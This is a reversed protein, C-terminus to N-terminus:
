PQLAVDRKHNESAKKFTKKNAAQHRRVRTGSTETETDSLSAHDLIILPVRDTIPTLDPYYLNNQCKVCTQQTISNSTSDCWMSTSSINVVTAGGLLDYCLNRGTFLSPYTISLVTRDYTFDYLEYGTSSRSLDSASVPVKDIQIITSNTAASWTQNLRFEAMPGRYGLIPKVQGPTSLVDYGLGGSSSKLARFQLDASADHSVSFVLFHRGPQLTFLPTRLGTRIDMLHAVSMGDTLTRRYGVQHFSSTNCYQGVQDTTYFVVPEYPFLSLPITVNGSSCYSTGNTLTRCATRVTGNPPSFKPFNYARAPNLDEEKLIGFLLGHTALDGSCSTSSNRKRMRYPYSFGYVVKTKDITIPTYYLQGSVPTFWESDINWPDVSQGALMLDQLSRPAVYESQFLNAPATTPLGRPGAPGTVGTSSGNPGIPGQPGQPGAPGLPGITGATGTPGAIGTPGTVLLTANQGTVGVPGAAGTNGQPGTPGRTGNVGISGNPGTGGRPGVVSLVTLTANVVQWRTQITNQGLNSVGEFDDVVEDIKMTDRVLVYGFSAAVAVMAVVSTGFWFGM